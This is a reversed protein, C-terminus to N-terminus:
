AGGGGGLRPTEEGPLLGGPTGSWSVGGNDRLEARGGTLLEVQIRLGTMTGRLRHLRVANAVLIRRRDLPIEDHLPIGVWAALWDLFDTPALLPDIYADLCDLTALIPALVDDLVATVRGTFQGEQYVAPMLEVVPRSNALGNLSGRMLAGGGPGPPRLLVGPQEAGVGAPHDGQGARRHGPQGRVAPRGGGARGGGRGAARLIGRRR